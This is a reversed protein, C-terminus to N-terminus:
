EVIGVSVCTHLQYGSEAVPQQRNLFQAETGLLGIINRDGRLTDM